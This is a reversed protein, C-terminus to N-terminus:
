LVRDVPLAGAVPQFSFRAPRGSKTQLLALRHRQNAWEDLTLVRLTGDADLEMGTAVQTALEVEAVTEHSPTPVSWLHAANEQGGSLVNKGDPSFAVFWVQSEHLFSPGLPRGTSRDWLQARRDYSGTLITRGDPSIALARLRGDHRLPPAVPRGSTSDWLKAVRDWGGTIVTSGDPSFAAVSVPGDHQLPALLPLGTQADWLRATMDDSGTLVTKGDPSFAVALVPGQHRFPPGVPRGTAADWLRATKDASGTLALRGDPSFEVASVSGDHHMVSGIPRGTAASWLRATEDNSGTLVTRGDSGFAVAVVEAAHRLPPGLAVGTVVDWLRATMDDSGTLALRGSPSVALARVPGDHRLPPGIPKGTSSDWIRTTHDESASLVTQGDPSFIVKRIFGEHSFSLGTPGGVEWVQAARDRGGTLVTRGNPSFAVSSVAHRHRLVTGIPQCTAADWLRATGDLSGTLLLRGDPSFAVAEICHQQTLPKGVPQGSERDWLRATRDYCGTMVTRGDSSFAVSSVWDQHFLPHGIQLGTAVDWFRATKDFSGTLVTRSDPSFTVARVIHDHRLPPGFPEGTAVNWIRATRNVGGTIVKRGDPSFAVSFIPEDHWLLPGVQSGTAADWFRGFRDEGGTLLTRGDPSFALAWIGAAPQEIEIGTSSGTAADWLRVSNEGATAVTSGDPSFAVAKIVGPHQWRLKLPHLRDRWGELDLRFARELNANQAHAAGKLGRVLWLMGQGVDGQECLIQGHDYALDAALRDNQRERAQIEQVYAELQSAIKYQYVAFGISVGIASMVALAMAAAEAPRRRAYRWIREWLRVPRARIPEGDLYRRLDDALERATTYREQADKAMAKQCITELDRSIKRDVQRLRRPEDHALQRLIESRTGTFPLVGTLAEYLVVGLSYVDARADLDDSSDGAQEPSMYAPTGVLQGAQTLHAGDTDRFALGFDVIRPEGLPRPNAVVTLLCSRSAPAGHEDAPIREKMRSPVPGLAVAEASEDDIMINAPKVDRHIAGLAHAYGLADAVKAVLTASERNSLRRAVLLDRLTTGVVFDSVLIPLGEHVCVEHVSVIGPHRLQAVTRAERYIRELDRASEILETHPIKVAVVRGLQLDQARWVSGFAGVGVREILEFKGLRRTRQWPISAPSAHDSPVQPPVDQVVDIGIAAAGDSVIPSSDVADLTGDMARTLWAAGRDPFRARYESLRPSEGRMRRYAVDLGVLERLLLSRSPESAEDLFAEIEPRQGSCWAAEFCDCVQDAKRVRTASLAALEPDFRGPIIM